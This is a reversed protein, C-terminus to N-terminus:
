RQIVDARWWPAPGSGAPLRNLRSLSKCTHNSFHKPRVHMLADNSAVGMFHLVYITDLPHSTVGVQQEASAPLTPAGGFGVGSRWTFIQFINRQYSTVFANAKELALKEVTFIYIVICLTAALFCQLAYTRM